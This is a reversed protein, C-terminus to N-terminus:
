KSSEKLIKDLDTQLGDCGAAMDIRAFVKLDDAILNHEVTMRDAKQSIGIAPIGCGSSQRQSVQKSLQRSMCSRARLEEKLRAINLLFIPKINM